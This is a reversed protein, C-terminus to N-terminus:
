KKHRQLSFQPLKRSAALTSYTSFCVSDIVRKSKKDYVVINLGLSNDSFEEGDIKISSEFGADESTSVLCVNHGDLLFKKEIRKGDSDECIKVGGDLAAVYSQHRGAALSMDLGIKAFLKKHTPTLRKEGAYLVSFFIAYDPNVLKKLYRQFDTELSLTTLDLVASVKKGDGSIFGIEAREWNESEPVCCLLGDFSVSVARDLPAFEEANGETGCLLRIKFAQEWPVQIWIRGLYRVAYINQWSALAAGREFPIKFDVARHEILRADSPCRSTWEEISINGAFLNELDDFSGDFDFAARDVFLRREADYVAFNVGRQVTEGELGNARLSLKMGSPSAYTEEASHTNLDLYACGEGDFHLPAPGNKACIIKGNRSALLFSNQLDDNKAALVLYDSAVLKKIYSAFDTEERLSADKLAPLLSIETTCSAGDRQYGIEFKQAPLGDFPAAAWRFLDNEFRRLERVRVSVDGSRLIIVDPTLNKDLLKFFIMGGHYYVETIGPFTALPAGSRLVDREDQPLGGIEDAWLWNSTVTVPLNSPPTVPTGDKTILEVRLTYNGDQPLPVCGEATEIDGPLIDRPLDFITECVVQSDDRLSARLRLPNESTSSLTTGSRNDIAFRFTGVHRLFIKERSFIFEPAGSSFEDVSFNKDAAFKEEPLPTFFERYRPSNKGLESVYNGEGLEEIMTKQSSFLSTGIGFRRDPLQAGIAELITPAFDPTSFIRKEHSEPSCIPNIFVNFTARNEGLPHGAVSDGMWLHDGLLVITLNKAFDQEAIWDILEGTMASSARLVDRFDHFQEHLHVDPDVFYYTDPGHTDITELFIAYPRDSSARLLLDEKLREYLYRDRLGWGNGRYSEADSRTRSFWLLDKVVARPAHTMLLNRIGGFSCDNPFLFEMAYGNEDLVDYLSPASPLFSAYGGYDNPGIPLLLPLGMVAATIGGTTWETGRVQRFGTFYVNKNQLQALEPLLEAGMIGADNFTQEMSEMHILLLNRKTGPFTVGTQSRSPVDDFIATTQFQQVLWRGVSLDREAFFALLCIALVFCGAALRIRRTFFCLCAYLVTAVFVGACAFFILKGLHEDIGGALPVALHFLVQEMSVNGWMSRVLWLAAIGTTVLAFLATAFIGAVISRTKSHFM